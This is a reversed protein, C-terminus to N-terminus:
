ADRRAAWQTHERSFANETDGVFESLDTDTKVRESRAKSINIEHATLAYSTALETFRKAQLWSIACAAAFAFVDTPIYTWGSFAVRLLACVVAIANLGLIRRFWKTGDQKNMRAKRLYWDGQETVRNTLYFQLREPAALARVEKMKTSVADSSSSEDCLEKTVHQNEQLIEQLVSLFQDRATIDETDFPEARMMFRWAITKVSEAVARTGYWTKEFRKFALLGSCFLASFFLLASILSAATTASGTLNALSGLILLILFWSLCRLYASQASLSEADAAQFLGPYDSDTFSSNM